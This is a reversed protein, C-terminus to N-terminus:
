RSRPEHVGPFTDTWRQREKRAADLLYARYAHSWIGGDRHPPSTSETYWESMAEARLTASDSDDDQGPDPARGRSSIHCAALAALILTPVVRRLTRPVM